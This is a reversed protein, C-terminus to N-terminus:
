GQIVRRLGIERQIVEEKLRYSYFENDNFDVRLFFDRFAFPLAMRCCGAARELQGLSRYAEALNAHFAAVSPNVAIARGILEIAQEPRDQQFAAGGLLHLADPHDAQRALISEYIRAAQDLRGQQHHQIATTLDDTM